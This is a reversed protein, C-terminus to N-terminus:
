NFNLIAQISALKQEALLARTKWDPESISVIENSENEEVRNIMSLFGDRSYPCVVCTEWDDFFLEDYTLNPINFTKILNRCLVILSSWARPTQSRLCIVLSVNDFSISVRDTDQRQEIMGDGHVVFHVSAVDYSENVIILRNIPSSRSSGQEYHITADLIRLTEDM